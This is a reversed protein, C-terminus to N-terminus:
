ITDQSSERQDILQQLKKITEDIVDNKMLLAIFIAESLTFTILFVVAIAIGKLNAEIETLHWIGLVHHIPMSLLIVTAVFAYFVSFSIYRSNRHCFHDPNFSTILRLYPTFDNLVRIYGPNNM